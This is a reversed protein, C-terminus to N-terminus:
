YLFCKKFHNVKQYLWTYFVIILVHLGLFSIRNIQVTNETLSINILLQMIVSALIMAILSWSLKPNAAFAATYPPSLPGGAQSM